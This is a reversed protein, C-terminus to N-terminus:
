ELDFVLQAPYMGMSCSYNMTTGKKQAPIDLGILGASPLVREYRLAPIVVALACSRTGKTVWILKVPRNAALHLVKPSYGRDHVYVVYGDQSTAATGLSASDAPHLGDAPALASSLRDGLKTFSVPSGSLNLGSDISVFGLVIV